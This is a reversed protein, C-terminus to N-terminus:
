GALGIEDRSKDIARKVQQDQRAQEQLMMEENQNWRSPYISSSARRRSREDVFCMANRRLQCGPAWMKLVAYNTPIRCDGGRRLWYLCQM